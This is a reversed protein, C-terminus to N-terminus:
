CWRQRRACGVWKAKKKAAILADLASDPVHEMLVGSDDQTLGEDLCALMANVQCMTPLFDFPTVLTRTTCCAEAAWPQLSLPGM